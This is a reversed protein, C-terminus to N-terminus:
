NKNQTPNVTDVFAELEDDEEKQQEELEKIRQKLKKNEETLERVRREMLLVRKWEEYSKYM